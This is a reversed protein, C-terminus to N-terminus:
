SVDIRSISRDWSGALVQGPGPAFCLARVYDTHPKVSAFKTEYGSVSRVCVTTDDSCSALVPNEAKDAGFVLKRISDEHAGKVHTSAAAMNRTDYVYIDGEEGGVAVLSDSQWAVCFLPSRTKASGAEGGSAARADWLRVSGDQAVTAINSTDPSHAVGWM